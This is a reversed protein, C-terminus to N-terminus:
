SSFLYPARLLVTQALLRVDDAPQTQFHQRYRRFKSWESIFRSGGHVIENRLEFLWSAKEILVSPLNLEQLGQLISKEVSGREGFMADLSVFYNIYAEIDGSNMGRNFFHTSKEIRSRDSGSCRSSSAYWDQILAVDKSSLPIDTVYFPMVPDCDKRTIQAEKSLRHPFQILFEYPYSMAKFFPRAASESAIAFLIAALTRFKLAGSFRVGDSTGYEEAVLVCEFHGPPSFTRDGDNGIQPRLPTWGSFRYGKEVLQNWAVEDDRKILRVSDNDLSFSPVQFRPVAYLVCRHGIRQRLNSEIEGQISAAFQPVPVVRCDFLTRNRCLFVADGDFIKNDLCIEQLTTTVADSVSELDCNRFESSDEIVLLSVSEIAQFTDATYWWSLAIGSPFVFPKQKGAFFQLSPRRESDEVRM